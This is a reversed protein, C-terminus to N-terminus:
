AVRHTTKETRTRIRRTPVIFNRCKWPTPGAKAHISDNQLGIDIGVTVPGAGEKARLKGFTILRERTLDGITVSGLTAQLKDLTAAKSRLAAKGVEAMDQIHLTILTGFTSRKGIKPAQISKGTEVAHESERAWIEADGRLRFTRSAYKGRRRLQVRWRGSQLKTFTAM